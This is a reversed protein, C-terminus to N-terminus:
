YVNTMRVRNKLDRISFLFHSSLWELDLGVADMIKMNYDAPLEALAVALIAFDPHNWIRYYYKVRVKEILLFAVVLVCFWKVLRSVM